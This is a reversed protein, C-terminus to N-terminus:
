FHIITCRAGAAVALKSGDKSWELVTCIHRVHCNPRAYGVPADGEEPMDEFNNDFSQPPELQTTSGYLEAESWSRICRSHRADICHVKGADDAIAYMCASHWPHWAIRRIHSRHLALEACAHALLTPPAANGNRPASAPPVQFHKSGSVYQNCGSSLLELGTIFGGCPSLSLLNGCFSAPKSPKPRRNGDQIQSWQFAHGSSPDQPSHALVMSMHRLLCVEGTTNWTGGANSNGLSRWLFTGSASDVISPQATFDHCRLRAAPNVVDTVLIRRGCPSPFVRTTLKKPADQWAFPRILCPTRHKDAVTWLEQGHSAILHLCGDSSVYVLNSSHPLWAMQCEVFPLGPRTTTLLMSHLQQGSIASHISVGLHLGAKNAAGTQTPNDVQCFGWVIALIDGHPSVKVEQATLDWDRLTLSRGASPHHTQGPQSERATTHHGNLFGHFIEEPCTLQYMPRPDPIGYVTVQGELRTSRPAAAVWCFVDRTCGDPSRITFLHSNGTPQAGDLELKSVAHSGVNALWIAETEMASMCAEQKPHFLVNQGDRLWEARTHIPQGPTPCMIFESGEGEFSVQQGTEVNVVIAARSFARDPQLIIRCCSDEIASLPSWILKQFSLAPEYAYSSQGVAANADAADAIHGSTDRAGDHSHRRSPQDIPQCGSFSLRQIRPPVDATGRLRALLQAKWELLERLPLRSTLGSPLLSERAQESLQDAPTEAILQHWERCTSALLVLSRLDLHPVLAQWLENSIPGRQGHTQAPVLPNAGNAAMQLRPLTLLATQARSLAPSPSIM